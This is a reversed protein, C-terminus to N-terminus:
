EKWKVPFRFLSASDRLVIPRAESKNGTVSPIDVLSIHYNDVM